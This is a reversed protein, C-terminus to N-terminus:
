DSAPRSGMTKQITLRNRDGRREYSQADSLARVFQLGFGGESQEIAEDTVERLPDFPLGNDEFVLRAEEGRLSVSVSLWPKETDAFSYSIQNNLIEDVIIGTESIRDPDCGRLAELVFDAAATIDRYGPNEVVFRKAEGFSLALMTVDDFQEAGRCFALLAAYLEATPDDGCGKLTEAIRGYGFAEQDPDIGENLGDTFMLRTDSPELVIEEPLFDVDEFVGLVYNSEEGIVTVEGGRRLMPQEHGARLCSLRGSEVDLVGFFATIFISEENGACLENNLQFAMEGLSKDTMVHTRILEKARMMFLSAPVGKGSVDALCFFMRRDDLMFYDYLDGGVERAPKLFSTLVAEGARLGGKPLSESQIRAALELETKMKEERSTKEALTGLYGLIADQMLDFQDSLKGIEDRSHIAAPVREPVGSDIESTFRQSADTLKKVNRVILRNAFMLMFLGIVLTAGFLIAFTYLSFLRVSHSLDTNQKGFLVYVGDTGQVPRLARCQTGDIYASATGSRLAAAMEEDAPKEVSAPFNYLSSSEPKRDILYVLNDHEADYFFLSAIDLGGAYSLMDMDTCLLDYENKFQAMQYSLGFGYKPPFIDVTFAEYFEQRKDPSEFETDSAQELEERYELYVAKIKAQYDIVFDIHVTEISDTLTNATEACLGKESRELSSAYLRSSVLVSVVILALSLVVILLLLKKSIGFRM